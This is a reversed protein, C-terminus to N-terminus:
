KSNSSKELDSIKQKLEIMKLERDTTFGNLKKTEELNKKMIDMNKALEQKSFELEDNKNNLDIELKNIETMDHIVLVLGQKQGSIMVFSGNILVSIPKSDNKSVVQMRMNKWSSNFFTEDKIESGDQNKLITSINKSTLEAVSFGLVKEVVNNVLIIQYKENIVILIDSITNFIQSIALAPSISLFNYKSIAYFIIMASIGASITTLCSPVLLYFLPLIVQTVIGVIFPFLYAIIFLRLQKKQLDNLKPLSHLAIIIALAILGSVFLGLFLFYPTTKDIYGWSTKIVGNSFLPTFFSIFSLILAPLLIISQILFSKIKESSTIILVFRLFSVAVFIAGISGIRSWLYSTDPNGAVMELSEGLVWIAMSITIYLYAYGVKGNLHKSIIYVCLIINIGLSIFQFVTFLNM